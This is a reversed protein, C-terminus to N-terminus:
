RRLLGGGDGGLWPMDPVPVAEQFPGNRLDDWRGANGILRGSFISVGQGGASRARYIQRVVDCGICFEDPRSEVGMGLYVHGGEVSAFEDALFAFDLHDGYVPAIDWYIMPVIVDVLGAALWGHSDQFRTDYGAAVRSWGRTNRYVGWVAASLPLPAVAHLSDRTESVSMTVLRRRFDSFTLGPEAARATDFGALTADDYSFSPNPYRIFDLHVGDIPYSRALDAAVAGLRARVGPQGPTLWVCGGASREGSETVMAWDPHQRLIHPPDAGPISESGCWGILANLWVHLELGQEHAVSLAAGLPDWGPDQGLVFLPPRHAWPELESRYYADARGRVQFYIINFNADAARRLLSELEGRDYWDWRSVWLARAERDPSPVPEVPDPDPDPDPGAPAGDDGCASLLTTALLLALAGLLRVTRLPTPKSTRM